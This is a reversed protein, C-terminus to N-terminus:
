RAASLFVVTMLKRSFAGAAAEGDINASFPSAASSHFDSRPVATPTGPM